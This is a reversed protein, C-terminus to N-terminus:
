LITNLPSTLDNSYVRIMMTYANIVNYKQLLQTLHILIWGLHEAAGQKHQVVVVIDEIHESGTPISQAMKCQQCTSLFLQFVLLCNKDASMVFTTGM